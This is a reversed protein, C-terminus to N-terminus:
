RGLLMLLLGQGNSFAVILGAFVVSVMSMLKILINLSPGSTDKFPDGVTDGVVAAKHAPSGKGGYEGSEIYKKANDWAGGANSMMVALAFGAGLSGVLLGLVGAVGFISGILVPIVIAILSPMTMERQASITSIEVCRAYDPKAKGELIGPIERFQRRVEEVMGGAARGVASMTLASFYFATVVGSFVGVLVAPNLLTVDYYTMFNQVTLESVKIAVGDVVLETVGRLEGLVLRIEELYAALLAMATLAASGIAFGKGIAATTNGVADLQDTRHRVEPDLGSMEANGGANDAIPGYADTALTFGLTSLMSVAALGVGYLGMLISEAGGSVYFSVVIGILVVVVPMGTSNMGLAVGEIIATATSTNAQQAIKQTPAFAHSTYYETLKGVAVGVVLGTLVVFWMAFWNPLGIFYFVPLSLVGIGASSVYLGRSLAGILEGQTADEKSRVVYLALISLVVGLAALVIPASIFIMGMQLDSGQLGVAAVGLASTALISGAYSEYLDAGMGAVDGVNDGVNDAITAPNRPDDEPINAEVKGVLDAGVDAAKTYIGGGVRAFLAQTSAGMGFSLMVATIQPLPNETLLFEFANPFVVPFVNYLLLFWVTIDLLAFGVVVLGMVAGARLAVQLASNLSKTAAFTTRASANTATKMGIYGCLGSFLGGTLFAYPVIPNQLHFWSLVLFIVFLVAFVIGVVRYQSRLYAMAGERVAQAIEQMRENGESLQMLQRYLYFAFGLAILAAIPGLWWLLPLPPRATSALLMDFQM